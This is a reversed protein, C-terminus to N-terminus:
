AERDLGDDIAKGGRKRRHETRISWLSLVVGLLSAILTVVYANRYCPLGQPCDRAGTPLIISHHDFITGYILNFLNGFVVAALCMCGWNQSLGHVGFAESVLTPYVGFLVGYALGTLGSVAWLFHPNEIRIACIQAIAFISSSVVICWYRSLHLVKVIIDSGVGSLLRGTFSSVSVISVHMLQRKEIFGSSASDDYHSWLAQADNGINNITMLGVGTLTGLLFWQQWFEVKRLLALGRVDTINHPHNVDANPKGTQAAVDRSAWSSSKSMLSSTEDEDHPKPSKPSASSSPCEEAAIEPPQRDESADRTSRGPEHSGFKWNVRDESSKSRYLRSSSSQSRGERRPLASYAPAQPVVRIFLFSVFAMSFTGVSLLFLFESTNEHFAFSSLNAFFFASLGFAALPFATATGRHNPWNLAATKLAAFFASCSGFGTLLAFFCLLGVSTSGQGHDYARHMPYYGLGLFVAGLLVFGRPGHKDILIGIPVGTAYM